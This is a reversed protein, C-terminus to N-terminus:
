EYLLQNKIYKKKHPFSISQELKNTIYPHGVTSQIVLIPLCLFIWDWPYKIWLDKFVTMNLIVWVRTWRKIWCRIAYGKNEIVARIRNRHTGVRNSCLCKRRSNPGNKKPLLSLSPWTPQNRSWWEPRWTRCYIRLPIWALVRVTGSWSASIM